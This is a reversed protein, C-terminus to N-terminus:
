VEMGATPIPDYKMKGSYGVGLLLGAEQLPGVMESSPFLHLGKRGFSYQEM